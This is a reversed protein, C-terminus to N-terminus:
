KTDELGYALVAGSLLIIGTVAFLAQLPLLLLVLVAFAPGITYALPSMTRFASVKDTDEGDVHKFFFSENMIDVIAAGVRTTFLLIGWLILSASSILSVAITSTSLIIFGAILFEKQGYKADGIKGLPIEVLIFAILMFSSILGIQSFNLGIMEHLYIPTYVVMVVYFLRLLFNIIFINRISKSHTITNRIMKLNPLKYERNDKYPLRKFALFVFPLMVSAAVLFLLDFDGGTILYGGIAPALVFASNAMTIFVARIGGTGQESVTSNELFIDLSFGIMYPVAFKLMFPIAIIWWNASLGLIAYSVADVIALAILLTYNGFRKLLFPAAIISLAGSLSGLAYVLGVMSKPIGRAAIFSSMYYTVLAINLAFLFNLVYLVLRTQSAVVVRSRRNSILVM